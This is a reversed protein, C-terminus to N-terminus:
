SILHIYIFLSVVQAPFSGLVEFTVKNINECQYYGCGYLNNCLLIYLNDRITKVIKYGRTLQMTKNSITRSFKKLDKSLTYVLVVM